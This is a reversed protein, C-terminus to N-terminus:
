IERHFQLDNYSLM